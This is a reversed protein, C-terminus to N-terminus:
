WRAELGVGVVRPAGLIAQPQDSWRYQIYKEDLLNNAFVWASWNGKEYGFKANLLTRSALQTRFDGLDTYVKTRHNANLNLVWDQAFRWNTGAALTWRPAYAFETGSYDDINAGLITEFEDFRTRSHGLSAYWDFADNVRHSAELEFGYLHARGANVTHYDFDNLGFFANVQKDKWDVYYANANLSFRGDLWLSRLSAEYNWTYEPDYAYTTSRAINFSSAGSRYGRQVVFSASVDDTFAFRAGLKPLFTDFDRTGQPTAGSAQGVFGLVAQNIVTFITNLDSGPPGYNAPDPLQGAFLATTDTGFRYSQRDYRFGGLLAFRDTMAFEGDAFIAQNESHTPTTSHYDVPIVPLASVYLGAIQGATAPDVGNLMLLGAITAAPTEVNTQSASATFEKRRSYYAGVLGKLRDGEFGLRLEQSLADSDIDSGGWSLPLETLDGDYLRRSTTDSWATVAHFTWHDGFAYDVELTGIDARSDETNPADSYNYRHEYPDPTDLRSYTFMYPGPREFWTYGLRVELGPLASPTWLLKARALTSESADEHTGRTPNKVFGDTDRDEVAIRFALEDAILAGGGAFAAVRDGPDSYLLRARASWDMTPDETRLIIAGALANEGQITSQPGRLIELQSLDWLTTPGGAVLVSPLAAGDLYITSLPSAGGGDRDIVGRITFGANGYTQSINATRNLVQYLDVLNEERMREPTTVAVSTTTEQLSREAKEGKVIITALTSERDVDAADPTEVDQAFAAPFPLLALVLAASLRTVRM